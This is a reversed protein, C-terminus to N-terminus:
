PSNGTEIQPLPVIRPRRPHPATTTPTLGQLYKRLFLRDRPRPIQRYLTPPILHFQHFQATRNPVVVANPTTFRILPATKTQFFPTQLRLPRAVYMPRSQRAWM